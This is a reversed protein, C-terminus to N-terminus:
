LESIHGPAIESLVQAPQTRQQNLAQRETRLDKRNGRSVEPNYPVAGGLNGQRRAEPCMRTWDSATAPSLLSVSTPFAVANREKEQKAEQVAQLSPWPTEPVGASWLCSRRVTAQNAGQGTPPRPGQFGGPIWQEEEGLAAPHGETVPM